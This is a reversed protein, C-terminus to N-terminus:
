EIETNINKVRDRMHSVADVVSATSFTLDEFDLGHDVSWQRCYVQYENAEADFELEVALLYAAPISVYVEGHHNELTAGLDALQEVATTMQEIM